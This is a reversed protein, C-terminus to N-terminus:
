KLNKDFFDAILNGMEILSPEMRENGDAWGHLGNKVIVLTAPVGNAKLKDALWISQQMPVRVDKDGHFLLFPPAAPTVHTLPSAQVLVPDNASSIPFITQAHALREPPFQATLDSVGYVVVVASVRSSQDAYEGVDFGADKDTLGALAALQGGASEGGIGIRKLDIHYKDAHARFHRIACKVDQIHAPWKFQPALRYDISAFVYGRALLEDIGLVYTKMSKDMSNWAGGHVYIVLPLLAASIQKPFYVDMQLAVGAVTGYTVDRWIDGPKISISSPSPTITPM